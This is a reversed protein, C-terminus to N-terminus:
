RGMRRVKGAKATDKSKSINSSICELYSETFNIYEEALEKPSGFDNRLEELMMKPDEAKGL